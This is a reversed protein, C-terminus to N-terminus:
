RGRGSGHGGGGRFGGGRSITGVGSRFGGSSPRSISTSMRGGRYSHLGSSASSWARGTSAHARFGGHGSRSVHIGSHHNPHGRYAHHYGGHHYPYRSYHNGRHGYYHHYRHHGYYRPYYGFHYYPYRYGSYSYYYPYYDLYSSYYPWSYGYNYAFYPYGSYGYSTYYPYSGYSYAPTYPESYVPAPESYASDNPRAYPTPAPVPASQISKARLEGGRQIIATLIENPVGRDRLAIIETPTPNYAVPSNNIFTKVITVDVKADIMKLIEPIGGSFRVTATAAPTPAAGVEVNAQRVELAVGSVQSLSLAILAASLVQRGAIKGQKIPKLM